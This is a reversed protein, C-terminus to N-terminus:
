KQMGNMYSRRFAAEPAANGRLSVQRMMMMYSGTIFYNMVM